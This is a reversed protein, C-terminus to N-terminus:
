GAEVLLWQTVVDVGRESSYGIPVLLPAKKEIGSHHNGCSPWQQQSGALWIQIRRWHYWRWVAEILLLFGGWDDRWVVRNRHLASPDLASSAYLLWSRQETWM